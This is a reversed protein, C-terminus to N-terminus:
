GARDPAPSYLLGVRCGRWWREAAIVPLVILAVVLSEFRAGVGLTASGFLANMLPQYVFGLQLPQAGVGAYVWPNGWLGISVVSNKLSRCNFHYFIPRGERGVKRAL